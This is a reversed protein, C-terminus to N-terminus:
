EVNLCLECEFYQVGQGTLGTKYLHSRSICDFHMEIKCKDCKTWDKEEGNEEDEESAKDCYVRFWNESNQKHKKQM